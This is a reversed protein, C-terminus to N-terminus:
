IHVSCGDLWCALGMSSGALQGLGQKDRVHGHRHVRTDGGGTHGQADHAQVPHFLDCWVCARLALEQLTSLLMVPCEIGHVTAAVCCCCHLIICSCLHGQM